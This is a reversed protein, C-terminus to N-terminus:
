LQRQLRIIMLGFCCGSDLRWLTYASDISVPVDLMCEVLWCLILHNAQHVEVQDVGDHYGLLLGLIHLAIGLHHVAYLGQVSAAAAHIVWVLNLFLLSLPLLAVLDTAATRAM